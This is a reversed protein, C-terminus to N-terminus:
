VLEGCKTQQSVIVVYVSKNVKAPDALIELPIEEKMAGNEESRNGGAIRVRPFILEFKFNLGDEFEAGECKLKLAFYEQKDLKSQIVLNKFDRSLVVQQTRPQRMAYNAYDPNETELRPRAEIINPQTLTYKASQIEHNMQMGGIIDGSVSDYKGGLYVTLESVRLPTEAVRAPLTGWTTSMNYTVRYNHTTSGEAASEELLLHTGSVNSATLPYFAGDAKLIEVSHVSKVDGGAIIETVEIDVSDGSAEVVETQWNKEHKGTGKITTNLKVWEDKTMDIEVSEYMLSILRTKQLEAEQFIATFTYPEVSEGPSFIHKKGTIGIDVVTGVGAMGLKLAHLIHQIQARSQNLSFDNLRIGKRYLDTSEESGTVEDENKELLHELNPISGKAFILQRDCEAANNLGNERLESSIALANYNEFFNRPFDKSM